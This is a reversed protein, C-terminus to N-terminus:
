RVRSCSFDDFLVFQARPHPEQRVHFNRQWIYLMLNAAQLGMQESSAIFDLPDSIAALKSSQYGGSGYVKNKEMQKKLLGPM